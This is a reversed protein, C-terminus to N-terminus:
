RTPTVPAAISKTAIGVPALAFVKVMQTLLAPWMLLMLADHGNVESV